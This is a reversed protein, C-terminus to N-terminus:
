RTQRGVLTSLSLTRLNAEATAAGSNLRFPYEIYLNLKQCVGPLGLFGLCSCVGGVTCQAPTIAAVTWSLRAMVNRAQDLWIYNRNTTALGGTAVWVRFPSGSQFTAASTTTYDNSSSVYPSLGGSGYILRSTPFPLSSEYAMTTQGGVYGYNTLNYLATLREMEANAAFVAKQRLVLENARRDAVTWSAGLGIIFVSLVIAAAMVEMMTFGRQRRAPSTAPLM